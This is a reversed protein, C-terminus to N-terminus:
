SVETFHFIFTKVNVSLQFSQCVQMLVKKDEPLLFGGPGGYKELSKLAVKREQRGERGERRHSYVSVCFCVCM